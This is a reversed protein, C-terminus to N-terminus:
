SYSCSCSCSCMRSVCLPLSVSPIVFFRPLSWLLFLPFCLPFGSSCLSPLRSSFCLSVSPFFLSFFVSRRLCLSSLRQSLPSVSHLLSHLPSVLLFFSNFLCLTVLLSLCPFSLCIYPPASGSVSSSAITVTSFVSLFFCFFLSVSPSPCFLCM